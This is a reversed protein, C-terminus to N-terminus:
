LNGKSNTHVVNLTQFSLIPSNPLDDFFISNKMRSLRIEGYRPDLYITSIRHCKEYTLLLEMSARQANIDELRHDYVEDVVSTASISNKFIYRNIVKPKCLSQVWIENKEYTYFIIPDHFHIKYDFNLKVSSDESYIWLSEYDPVFIVQNNQTSNLDVGDAM